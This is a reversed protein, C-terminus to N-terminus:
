FDYESEKILDMRDHKADLSIKDDIQNLQTLQRKREVSIDLFHNQLVFTDASNFVNLFLPTGSFSLPSVPGKSMFSFKKSRNDFSNAPDTFSQYLKLANNDSILERLTILDNGLSLGFGFFVIRLQQLIDKHISSLSTSIFMWGLGYKRTTKVSDLLTYRVSELDTNDYRERRVFRHAEDLVVLTNLSRDNQWANEGMEVLGQLLRKIILAQITENWYDLKMNHATQLSLDIIILPKNENDLNKLLKKVTTANKREQFLESIPKWIRDFIENKDHETLQELLGNLRARPEPTAYILPQINDKDRLTNIVSDFTEKFFLNTLNIRLKNQLFNVVVTSAEKKKEGKISLRPFFYSESLIEEFLEWRDLILDRVNIVQFDKGINQLIKRIDLEFGNYIKKDTNNEFEHDHEKDLTVNNQPYLHSKINKSFEGVPDIVFLGMQHYRSYAMLIMKALTSKGSGTSGFIGLHYAEGAGDLGSGFHKFWMPLKTKSGYVNGLYFLLKQQRELLTNLIKDDTIYLYTGTPPVTGLFSPEFYGGGASSFIASCNLKGVHTDQIGSITNVVGKQRAVSRITPNELMFNKLEIETIQGLSYHTRYDQLYKFIGLEGVLKKAVSNQLINISIENTSSPSGITGIPDIIDLVEDLRNSDNDVTNFEMDKYEIDEPMVEFQSTSNKDVKVDAEKENENNFYNTKKVDDVM